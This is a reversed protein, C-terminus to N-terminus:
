ASSAKAGVVLDDFSHRVCEMYFDIDPLLERCATVNVGFHDGYSNISHALGAGNALPTCGTMMEMRAGAFYLPNRPGPTNTVLTNALVPPNAAFVAGARTAIGLLAGPIVQSVDRLTAAAVGQQAVKSAATSVHIAALRELPDAIDTHMSAVMMAVQNGGAEAQDATRTSIPVVATMPEAPLEGKTDLYQRLAGGVVVLAADNVTAGAVANKAARIESLPLRTADFIKHPTVRGNFRTRPARSGAQARNRRREPLERVIPPLNRALLRAGNLPRTVGHVGARRLLGWPSPDREPKWRDEVVPRSPEAEEDHMATIMQVGAMGDIAAHHVKLVVGFGGEPLWDIGDLGDIVTMEWPPRSMDLPRSHLRGVQTCFQRWDGPRPLALHRVHYELDFDPDEVWYAEDLGFPVTVLKERFAPALPLCAQVAEMIRDITVEGGPATSRDYVMVPCMHQPSAPSEMVVFMHDMWALQRM